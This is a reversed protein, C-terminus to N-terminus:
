IKYNINLLQEYQYAIFQSRIEHIFARSTTEFVRGDKLYVDMDNAYKSIDEETNLLHCDGFEDEFYYNIYKIDSVEFNFGLM